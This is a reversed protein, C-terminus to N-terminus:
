ARNIGTGLYIGSGDDSSISNCVENFPPVCKWSNIKRIRNRKPEDEVENRRKVILNAAEACDCVKLTFSNAKM